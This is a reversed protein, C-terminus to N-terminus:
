TINKIEIILGDKLKVNKSPSLLDKYTFDSKFSKLLNFIDKKYTTVSLIESGKKILITKQNIFSILLLTFLLFYVVIQNIKIGM